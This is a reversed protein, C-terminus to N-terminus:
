KMKSRLKISEGAVMFTGYGRHHLTRPDRVKPDVWAKVVEVVFFCYKAVM